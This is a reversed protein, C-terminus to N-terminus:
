SRPMRSPRSVGVNSSGRSLNTKKLTVRVTESSISEVVELEVLREAIMRMTWRSADEPVPSCVIQVMMAEVKGTVKPEVPPTLRPKRELAGLAGVESVRQRLRQLSRLSLGSHHQAKADSLAPGLESCDVALLAKARQVKIAAAKGSRTIKELKERESRELKIHYKKIPMV